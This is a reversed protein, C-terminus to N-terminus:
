ILIWAFRQTNVVEGRNTTDAAVFNVTPAAEPEVDGGCSDGGWRRHGSGCVWQQQLGGLFKDEVKSVGDGERGCQYQGLAGRRGGHLRPVM